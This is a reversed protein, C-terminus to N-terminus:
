WKNGHADYESAAPNDWNAISAATQNKDQLSYVWVPTTTGSATDVRYATTGNVGWILLQSGSITM